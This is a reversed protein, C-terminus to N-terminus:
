RPRMGSAWRRSAFVPCWFTLAGLGIFPGAIAALYSATGWEQVFLDWYAVLTFNMNFLLCLIAVRVTWRALSSTLDPWWVRFGCGLILPLLIFLLLPWAM